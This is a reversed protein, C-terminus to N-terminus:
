KNYFHNPLHYSAFLDVPCVQPAVLQIKELKVTLKAKKEQDEEQLLKVMEWYESYTEIDMTQSSRQSLFLSSISIFRLSCIYRNGLVCQFIYPKQASIKYSQNHKNIITQLLREYSSITNDILLSFIKIRTEKITKPKGMRNQTGPVEVILVLKVSFHISLSKPSSDPGPTGSDSAESM